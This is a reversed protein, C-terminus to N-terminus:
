RNLPFPEIEHVLGQESLGRGNNLGKLVTRGEAGSQKGGMRAMERQTIVVRKGAWATFALSLTMCHTKIANYHCVLAVSMRMRKYVLMCFLPGGTVPSSVKPEQNKLAALASM